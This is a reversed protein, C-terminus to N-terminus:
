RSRLWFLMLLAGPVFLEVALLVLGSVLRSLRFFRVMAGIALGMVSSQLCWALVVFLWWSPPSMIPTLLFSCPQTGVFTMYVVGEAAEGGAVGCSLVALAIIFGIAGGSASWLWLRRDEAQGRPPLSTQNDCSPEM